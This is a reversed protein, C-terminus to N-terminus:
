NGQGILPGGVKFLTTQCINTTKKFREFNINVTTKCYLYLNHFLVWNLTFYKVIHM